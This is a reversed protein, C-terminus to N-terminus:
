DIKRLRVFGPLEVESTIRKSKPFPLHRYKRENGPRSANVIKGYAVDDVLEPDKCWGGTIFNWGSGHSMRMICEGSKVGKVKKLFYKIRDLYLDVSEDRYDEWFEIEEELIRGTNENITHFLADISKFCDPFNKIERSKLNKEMGAQDFTLSFVTKEDNGIAEVLQKKSTDTIALEEGSKEKININEMMVAVTKNLKFYADGVRLFRFVDHNPDKGFIEKELFSSTFRGRNELKNHDINKYKERVIENFVATRLSGKISSGPLYPLGQGNHLQEKLTASEKALSKDCFINIIRGSIKQLSFELGYGKLFTVLGEGKDISAVWAPIREEGILELVKHENVIGINERGFVYEIQKQFFRGSGVHVPSLTEIEIRAM